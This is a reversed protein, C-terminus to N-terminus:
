DKRHTGAGHTGRQRFADHLALLATAPARFVLLNEVLTAIRLGFPRARHRSAKHAAVEILERTAQEVRAVIKILYERPLVFNQRAVQHRHPNSASDRMVITRYRSSM